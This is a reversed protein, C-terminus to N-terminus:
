FRTRLHFPTASPLTMRKWKLLIIIDFFIVVLFSFVIVFIGGSKNQLEKVEYIGYGIAKFLIFISTIIFLFDYIFAQM